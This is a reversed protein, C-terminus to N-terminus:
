RSGMPEIQDFGVYVGTLLYPTYGIFWADQEDNTTGTKGAVGRELVRARYGTGSQVVEQLLRTVIFANTPSIAEHWAPDNHLIVNGQADTVTVVLRPEIWTGGRAFATYGTCLSIPSVAAAGLSMSLFPEFEATLGMSEARDIVTQIGISEAVQVTVINRSKVLATRILTPVYNEGSYNKPEWIQMTVPDMYSKPEDLVVSGATYGNDFAASYVFPKFGSGPQRQAQTARNFQSEEFDYGGVLAVVDGTAPEISVLAGQIVPKQELALALPTDPVPEETLSAWVVNGPQLVNRADTIEAVNEPPVNPDPRRCWAMTAVPIVGTANGVRVHAADQNVETVLVQIWEDMNYGTSSLLLEQEAAFTPYQDPTLQRVPGQWGRRQTSAELGERMAHEAAAQHTLDVATHVQLGLEYIADEGYSDLTVGQASLNEETLNEILWRRVEELYYAGLQWSPDEMHHFALPEALAADHEEQTIWELELMRGLVYVQREKAAEPNVYPNYSTPAKPLGAILACQALSLQDSTTAFYNRAAAEVGYSNAGLFIENLYIALIEDKTLIEELRSALIAEKIKRAYSRQATLLLRKVVQQTITSGGQVVEGAEINRTFARFIATLDIGEHEYFSADEAALFAKVLLPSIDELEIPYRQERFLHGLVQGDRAYVTSVLSPNYNWIGAFQPMDALEDEYGLNQLTSSSEFTILFLQRIYSLQKTTLISEVRVPQLLHVNVTMEAPDSLFAMLETISRATNEDFDRRAADVDYRLSKIYFEMFEPEEQAAILTLKKLLSHDTYTFDAEKFLLDEIAMTQLMDLSVRELDMSLDIEGIHDLLLHLNNLSFSNGAEEYAYDIHLDGTVKQYGLRQYEEYDEGFNLHNVNVEIGEFDVAMHHPKSHSIDMDTVVIREISAYKDDPFRLGVNNVTLELALLNVDVSSYTITVKDAVRAIVADLKEAAKKNAFHQGGVYGAFLLCGLFFLIKFFRAMADLPDPNGFLPQDRANGTRFLALRLM